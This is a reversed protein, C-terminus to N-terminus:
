PYKLSISFILLFHVGFSLLNNGPAENCANRNSQQLIRRAHATPFPLCLSSCLIHIFLLSLTWLIFLHILFFFAFKKLITQRFQFTIVLYPKYSLFLRILSFILLNAIFKHLLKIHSIIVIMIFKLWEGKSAYMDLHHEWLGRPLLLSYFEISATM